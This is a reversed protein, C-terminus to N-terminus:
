YRGLFNHSFEACLYSLDRALAADIIANVEKEERKKNELFALHRLAHLYNQAVPMGISALHEIVKIDKVHRQKHTTIYALDVSKLMAADLFQIHLDYIQKPLYDSWSTFKLKKNEATYFEDSLVQPKDFRSSKSPHFNIDSKQAPVLSDEASLLNGVHFVYSLICFNIVSFNVLFRKLLGRFSICLPRILTLFQLRSSQNSSCM